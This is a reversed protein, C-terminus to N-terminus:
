VGVKKSGEESGVTKEGGDQKKKWEGRPGKEGKHWPLMHKFVDKAEAKWAEKRRQHDELQEQDKRIKEDVWDLRQQTRSTVDEFKCLVQSINQALNPEQEKGTSPM